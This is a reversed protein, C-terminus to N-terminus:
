FSSQSSVQFRDQDEACRGDKEEPHERWGGLRRDRLLFNRPCIRTEYFVFPAITSDRGL